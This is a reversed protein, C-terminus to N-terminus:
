KKSAKGYLCLTTVKFGEDKCNKCLPFVTKLPPDLPAPCVRYTGGWGGGWGRLNSFIHNKQTFDHNKVRFVGLFNAGGEGRRLKKLHAGGLKLDQIRGQNQVRKKLELDVEANIGGCYYCVDLRVLNSSYYSTEMLVGVIIVFM